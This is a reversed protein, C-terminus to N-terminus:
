NNLLLDAIVGTAVAALVYDGDVNVWHYGRPPQRLHRAKWDTVEYRKDRYSAPVRDGKHWNHGPGAGRPGPGDHGPAERREDHHEQSPPNDRRDDRHDDRHDQAMAALPLAIAAAALLGSFSKLRNM